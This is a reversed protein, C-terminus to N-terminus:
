VSRSMVLPKLDGDMYLAEETGCPCAGMCCPLCRICTCHVCCLQCGVYRPACCADCCDLECCEQLTVKSNAHPSKYCCGPLLPENCQPGCCLCMKLRHTQCRCLVDCTGDADDGCTQCWQVAVADAARSIRLLSHFHQLHLPEHLVARCAREFIICTPGCFLCPMLHMAKFPPKLQKNGGADYETWPRKDPPLSCETTTPARDFGPPKGMAAALLRPKRRLKATCAM